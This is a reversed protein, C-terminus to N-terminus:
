TFVGNRLFGHYGRTQISGAGASCTKGQKDVTILPPTGHRIWCRHAVGYAGRDKPLTCNNAPSDICWAQGDPCIVHLSRGDPGCWNEHGREFYMAGPPLKRSSYEIGADDVYVQDAFLQRSDSESFAYGCKCARPWRSDAAPWRGDLRGLLFYGDAGKEVEVTELVKTQAHHYGHKGPCDTARSYRRMSLRFRNTEHVMFCKVAM